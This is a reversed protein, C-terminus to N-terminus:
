SIALRSFAVVDVSRFLGGLGGRWRQDRRQQDLIYCDNINMNVSTIARFTRGVEVNGYLIFDSKKFFDTVKFPCVTCTAFSGLLGDSHTM